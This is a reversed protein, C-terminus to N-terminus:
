DEGQLIKGIDSLIETLQNKEVLEIMRSEVFQKATDSFTGATVCIGKDIKQEKLKNYINRVIFDGVTTNSRMFSFFVQEVFNRSSVEVYVELSNDQNMAINLFKINGKLHSYKPVYYKIFLKCINTFQNMSGILYKELMSNSNVLSYTQIKQQIDKYDPNTAAIKQWYSIAKGLNHTNFYCEAISYYIDLMKETKMGSNSLLSEYMEIAQIYMKQKKNVNATMLTSDFMYLPVKRVRNYYKIADDYRGINYFANALYYMSEFDERNTQLVKLLCEICERFKGINFDCLGLSKLADVNEPNSRAAISLYFFAKDYGNNKMELKGLNLNADFNLDDLKKAILFYKKADEFNDLKLFTEALKVTYKVENVEPNTASKDILILYEKIAPVYAKSDVLLEALKERASIDGPNAKLIKKLEDIATQNDENKLKEIKTKITKSKAGTVIKLVVFIVVLAALVYILIIFIFDM